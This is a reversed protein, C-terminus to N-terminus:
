CEPSMTLPATSTQYTHNTTERAAATPLDPRSQETLTRRPIAMPKSLLSSMTYNPQRTPSMVSTNARNILMTIVYRKHAPPHHSSTQLYRDVQRFGLSNDLCRIVYSFHIQQEMEMSVKVKCHESSLHGLSDALITPGHPWITFLSDVYRHWFKLKFLTLTVNRSITPWDTLWDQHRAGM